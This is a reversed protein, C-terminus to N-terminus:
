LGSESGLITGRQVARRITTLTEDPIGEFALARYAAGRAADDRGLGEVLPHRTLLPDPCVGANSRYSSWPYDAPDAVISARVPNLDIYRSCALFYRDSDIM